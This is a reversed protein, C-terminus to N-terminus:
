LGDGGRDVRVDRHTDGAGGPTVAQGRRRADRARDSGGIPARFAVHEDQSAAAAAELVQPGEVFLDHHAGGRGRFDRQNGGDAVLGVPRQDVVGGVQKAVAGFWRARHSMIEGYVEELLSYDEGKETTAALLFDMTRDINKLGLSVLQNVIAETEDAYSARVNFMYRANANSSIPERLGM